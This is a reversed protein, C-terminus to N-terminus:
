QIFAVPVNLLGSPDRRFSQISERKISLRNSKSVGSKKQTLTSFFMHPNTISNAIFLEVVYASMAAIMAGV